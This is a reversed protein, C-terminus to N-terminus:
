PIGGEQGPYGAINSATEDIHWMALVGQALFLDNGVAQPIEILLYETGTEDLNIRYIDESYQSAEITYTGSKTIMIPEVWEAKM